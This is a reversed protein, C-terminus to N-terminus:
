VGHIVAASLFGDWEIPQVVEVMANGQMSLM